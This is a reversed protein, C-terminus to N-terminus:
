NGTVHSRFIKDVSFRVDLHEALRGPSAVLIDVGEGDGIMAAQEAAFSAQGIAAAVRIPAGCAADKAAAAYRSVVGFVQLALDRTPLVILAHLPRQRPAGGRSGDLGARANLVSQIVPLAFALTKGSGTPASISADGLTVDASADALLLSPIVARQIPFFSTIGDHKLARVISADLGWAAADVDLPPVPAHVHSPASASVPPRARAVAARGLLPRLSSILSGLSTFEPSARPPKESPESSPRPRKRTVAVDIGRLLALAEMAFPADRNGNEHRPGRARRLRIVQLRKLKFNGEDAGSILRKAM